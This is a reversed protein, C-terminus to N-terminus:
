LTRIIPGDYGTGLGNRLIERRRGFNEPVIYGKAARFAGTYRGFYIAREAALPALKVERAFSHGLGAIRFGPNARVPELYGEVSLQRFGVAGSTFRGTRTTAANFIRGDYDGIATVYQGSPPAFNGDNLRMPTGEILLGTPGGRSVVGAILDRPEDSADIRSAVLGEPSWVGGVAVRTGHTLRGQGGPETIIPAGNVSFRGHGIAQVRGVLPYSVLVHRAVLRDRSLSAAITLPAGVQVDSESGEGFPTEFRTGSTIEVRLGNVILSGFDTMLGVIGTGGIGGEFPDKENRTVLAPAACGAAFTTGMLSLFTRRKM